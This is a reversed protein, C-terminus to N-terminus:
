STSLKLFAFDIKNLYNCISKCYYFIIKNSYKMKLINIIKTINLNSYSLLLKSVVDANGRKLIISILSDFTKKLLFKKIFERYLWNSREILHTTM